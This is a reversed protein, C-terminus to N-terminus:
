VGHSVERRTECLKRQKDILYQATARNASPETRGIILDGNLLEGYFSGKTDRLIRTEM